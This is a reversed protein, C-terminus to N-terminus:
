RNQCSSIENKMNDIRTMFVSVLSDLSGQTIKGEVFDDYDHYLIFIEPYAVGIEFFARTCFGNYDNTTGGFEQIFSERHEQLDVNWDRVFAIWDLKDKGKANDLEDLKYILYDLHTQMSELEQQIFLKTTQQNGPVIFTSDFDIRGNEYYDGYYNSGNEGLAQQVSEPQLKMLPSSISLNYEEPLYPQGHRTFPGVTLIGSAVTGKGQGWIDLGYSTTIMIEMDDPLNTEVDFYIKGEEIRTEVVFVLENVSPTLTFTPKPTQSPEVTDTPQPTFTATSDAEATPEPTNTSLPKETNTPQPTDIILRTSTATTISTSTM